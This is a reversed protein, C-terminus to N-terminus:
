AVAPEWASCAAFYAGEADAVDEALDALVGAPAGTFGAHRLAEDALELDRRARTISDPM